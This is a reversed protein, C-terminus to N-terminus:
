VPRADATPYHPHPHARACDERCFLRGDNRIVALAHPPIAKGCTGGDCREGRKGVRCVYLRLLTRPEPHPLPDTPLPYARTDTM